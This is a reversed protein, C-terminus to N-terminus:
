PEIAHCEDVSVGALLRDGCKPRVAGVHHEREVSAVHPRQVFRRAVLAHLHDVRPVLLRGGEGGLRVRLEGAAGTERDEGGTGADGVAHRGHRRRVEVTRREHHEAAPRRLAPPARPRQLLEVVHGDERRDRLVRGGDGIRGSRTAVDGRRDTQRELWM